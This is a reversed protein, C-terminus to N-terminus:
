LVSLVKVKLKFKLLVCQFFKSMVSLLQKNLKIAKMFMVATFVQNACGALVVGALVAVAIKMKKMNIGRLNVILFTM